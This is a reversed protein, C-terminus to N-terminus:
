TSSTLERVYAGFQKAREGDTQGMLHVFFGEGSSAFISWHVVVIKEHLAPYEILLKNFEGQEYNDQAWTCQTGYITKCSWKGDANVNWRRYDFREWWTHLFTRIWQTNRVLMVGTNAIKENCGPIINPPDSGIYLDATQQTLIDIQNALHELTTGFFQTNITADADLYLILSNEPVNSCLEKMDHVRIWYPSIATGQSHDFVIFKYGHRKCYAGAIAMSYKVFLPTAKYSISMFVYVNYQHSTPPGQDSLLADNLNITNIYRTSYIFTPCMRVM